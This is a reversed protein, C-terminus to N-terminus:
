TSRRAQLLRLFFARGWISALVGIGMTTILVYSYWSSNANTRKAVEFLYYGAGWLVPMSICQTMAKFVSFECNVSIHAESPKDRLRSGIASERSPILNFCLLLIGILSAFHMKWLLPNSYKFDIKYSGDGVAVAMFAHNARLIRTSVGNVTATWGADWNNSLVVLGAGNSTGTIQVDDPTYSTVKPASSSTKLPPLKETTADDLLTVAYPDSNTQLSALVNQATDQIIISKGAFARSLSGNLRYVWIPMSYDNAFICFYKEKLQIGPDIELLEVNDEIDLIPKSSLLYRVNMARLLPLNFEKLSHQFGTELALPHQDEDGKRRTIYLQRWVDYFREDDKMDKFRLSAGVYQKYYRNFIPFKLGVTELGEAQAVAPHLDICAVRFPDIRSEAYLRKLSSHSDFGKAYPVYMGAAVNEQRSTMIITALVVPLLFLAKQVRQTEASM